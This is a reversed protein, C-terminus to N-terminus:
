CSAEELGHCGTTRLADLIAAPEDCTFTVPLRRGEAEIRLASGGRAIYGLGRGPSIRVGLGGWSWPSANEVLEVKRIDSLAIKSNFVPHGIRISSSTVIVTLREFNLWLLGLALAAILAAARAALADTLLPTMLGIGVGSALLILGAPHLRQQQRHIVDMPM